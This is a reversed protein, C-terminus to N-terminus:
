KITELFTTRQNIEDPIRSLIKKLAACKKNMEQFPEETRRIRNDEPFMHAANSCPQIISSAPLNRLVEYYVQRAAIGEYEPIQGQLRLFSETMSVTVDAKRLMTAVLDLLVGPNSHEAQAHKPPKHARTTRTEAM